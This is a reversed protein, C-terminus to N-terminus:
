TYKRTLYDVYDEHLEEDTPAPGDTTVIGELRNLAALKQEITPADHEKFLVEERLSRTLMEILELREHAPLRTVQAVIEQYTM